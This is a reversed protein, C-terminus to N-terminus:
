SGIFDLEKALSKNTDQYDVIEQQVELARKVDYPTTSRISALNAEANLIAETNAHMMANVKVQARQVELDVRKEDMKEKSMTLQSRLGEAKAKGSM